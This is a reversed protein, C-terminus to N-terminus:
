VPMRDAGDAAEGDEFVRSSRATPPGPRIPVNLIIMNQTM